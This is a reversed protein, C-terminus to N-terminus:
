ESEREGGKKEKKKGKKRRIRRGLESSTVKWIARMNNTVKM